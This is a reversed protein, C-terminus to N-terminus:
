CNKFLYWGYFGESGNKYAGVFSAFLRNPAAPTTFTANLASIYFPQLPHVTETVYTPADAGGTTSGGSKTWKCLGADFTWNTGSAPLDICREDQQPIVVTGVAEFCVPVGVVATVNENPSITIAM